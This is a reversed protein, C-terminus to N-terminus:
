IMNMAVGIATIFSVALKMANDGEETKEEEGDITKRDGTGALVIAKNEDIPKTPEVYTGDTKKKSIEADKEIIATKATVLKKEVTAVEEVALKLEEKAGVIADRLESDTM